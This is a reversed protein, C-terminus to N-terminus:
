EIEIGFTLTASYGPDLSGMAGIIEGRSGNSVPTALSGQSLIPLGGATIFSTYAPTADQIRVNHMTEAGTNFATLRYIICEGPGAAFDSYSFAGDPSGNCNTDAAQEKRIAVDSRNTSTTDIAQNSDAGGNWSATITTVNISGMPLSAAANVKAFILKSEGVALNAVTTLRADGGSLVGNGDTDEYLVSQWGASGDTFSFTVNAQDTNGQNVLWHSYIIIGGPLVQGQNDPYLVVDTVEGITVADHKIDAAGTVPSL